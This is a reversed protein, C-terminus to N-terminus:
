LFTMLIFETRGMVTVGSRANEGRQKIRRDMDAAKLPPQLLSMGKIGLGKGIGSHLSTFHFDSLRTWSKTVGHVICDM